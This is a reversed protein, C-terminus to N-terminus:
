MGHADTGAALLLRSSAIRCLFPDSTMADQTAIVLDIKQEGIRAKIERLFIHKRLRVTQEDQPSITLLLDIDGGKAKDDVRSGFLFLAFTQKGLLARCAEVIGTREADTLRM